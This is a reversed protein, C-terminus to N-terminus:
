VMWRVIFGAAFSLLCASVLTHAQSWEWLSKAAAEARQLNPDTKDPDTMRLTATQTTCYAASQVARSEQAAQSRRGEDQATAM